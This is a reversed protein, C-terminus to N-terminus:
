NHNKKNKANAKLRQRRTTVVVFVPVQQFEATLREDQQLGVSSISNSSSGFPSKGQM